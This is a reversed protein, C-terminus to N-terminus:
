VVNNYLGFYTHLDVKWIFYKLLISFLEKGVVVLKLPFNHQIANDAPTKKFRSEMRDDDISM